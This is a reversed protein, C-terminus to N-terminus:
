HHSVVVCPRVEKLLRKLFSILNPSLLQGSTLFVPSILVYSSDRMACFIRIVFLPLPCSFLNCQFFHIALSSFHSCGILFLRSYRFLTATLYSLVPSTNVTTNGPHMLASPFGGRSWSM